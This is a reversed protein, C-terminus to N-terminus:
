LLPGHHSEQQAWIRPRRQNADATLVRLNWPVHLGRVVKGQLPIIHDVHHAISTAETLRRAEAYIANMERWHAKTLWAPAAESIARKRLRSRAVLKAKNALHYKRKAKRKQEEPQAKAKALYEDKRTLYRLQHGLKIGAPCRPKGCNCARSKKGARAKAMVEADTLAPGTLDSRARRRYLRLWQERYKEPNAKRWAKVRDSAESM